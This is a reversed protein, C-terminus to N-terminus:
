WIEADSRNYNKNNCGNLKNKLHKEQALKRLELAQGFRFKRSNRHIYEKVTDYNRTDEQYLDIYITLGLVIMEGDLSRIMQIVKDKQM